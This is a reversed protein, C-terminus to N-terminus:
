PKSFGLRSIPLLSLQETLFKLFFVDGCARVRWRLRYVLIWNFIGDSYGTRAIVWMVFMRSKNPLVQQSTSPRTTMPRRYLWVEWQMVCFKRGRSKFKGCWFEFHMQVAADGSRHVVPQDLVVTTLYQVKRGFFAIKCCLGMFFSNRPLAATACFSLSDRRGPWHGHDATSASPPMRSIADCRDVM